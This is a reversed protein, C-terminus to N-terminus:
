VTKVTSDEKGYPTLADLAEKIFQIFEAYDLDFRDSDATPETNQLIVENGKFWFALKSPRRVLAM